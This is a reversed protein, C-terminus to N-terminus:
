RDNEFFGKSIALFNEEMRFHRRKQDPLNEYLSKLKKEVVSNLKKTERDYIESADSYIQIVQELIDQQNIFTEHIDIINDSLIPSPITGFAATQSLDLHGCESKDRKFADFPLKNKDMIVKDFDFILRPNGSLFLLKINKLSLLSEPIFGCFNNSSLNLVNLRDLKGLGIPLPGEFQNNNLSLRELNSLQSLSEPLVGTLQSHSLCLEQLNSLTGLDPPLSGSLSSHTIELVTLAPMRTISSPLTGILNSGQVFLSKLGTMTDINNPLAGPHSIRTISLIAVDPIKTMTQLPGELVRKQLAKKDTEYLVCFTRQEVLNKETVDDLLSQDSAM